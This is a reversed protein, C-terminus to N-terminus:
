KTTVAQVPKAALDEAAKAITERTVDNNALHTNGYAFSRRQTERETASVEVGRALELLQDLDMEM